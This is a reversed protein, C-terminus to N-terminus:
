SSKAPVIGPTLTLLPLPATPLPAEILMRPVDVIPPLEPANTSMSPTGPLILVNFGFSISLTEIKFSAEDAEIYPDRAAFPTIKTVM